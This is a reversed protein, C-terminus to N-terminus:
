HVPHPLTPATAQVVPCTLYPSISLSILTPLFPPSVYRQVNILSLRQSIDFCLVIVNPKLLTWNEPSATDYCELRYPQNSFKLDYVFPQDIDHLLKIDRAPGAVSASSIRSLFTSKGCNADGLFLISVAPVDDDMDPV